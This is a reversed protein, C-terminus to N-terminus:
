KKSRVTINEVSNLAKINKLIKPRIKLFAMYIPGLFYKNGSTRYRRILWHFKQFNGLDDIGKEYTAIIKDAIDDYVTM